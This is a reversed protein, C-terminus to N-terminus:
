LILSIVAPTSLVCLNETILTIPNKQLCETFTQLEEMIFSFQTKITLLRAADLIPELTCSLGRLSYGQAIPAKQQEGCSVRFKLPFPEVVLTDEEPLVSYGPVDPAPRCTLRPGPTM